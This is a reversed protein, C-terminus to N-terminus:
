LNNIATKLKQSVEEALSSLNPNDVAAMTEMPNIATVEVEGNEHEQLLVNCPLMVGINPEQQIAQHALKPNCASLIKYNRFDVQLKEKFKEKLDIESIVGFGEQQLAEKVKATANDFSGNIKKSIHYSM